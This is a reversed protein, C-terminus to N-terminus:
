RFPINNIQEKPVIDLSMKISIWINENFFHMQIHRRRFTPWKTDAEIHYVVLISVAKHQQLKSILAKHIWTTWIVIKKLIEEDTSRFYRIHSPILNSCDFSFVVLM